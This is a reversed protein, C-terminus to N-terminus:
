TRSGIIIGSPALLWYVGRRDKVVNGVTGININDGRCLRSNIDMFGDSTTVQIYGDEIKVVKGEIDLSHDRIDDFTFLMREFWEIPTLIKDDPKYKLFRKTLFRMRGREIGANKCLGKILVRRYYPKLNFSNGNKIAEYSNEKSM